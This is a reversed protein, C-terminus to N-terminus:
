NQYMIYYRKNELNVIGWDTAPIQTEIMKKFDEIDEESILWDKMYEDFNEEFDTIIDVGRELYKEAERKTCGDEMLIKIKMENNM